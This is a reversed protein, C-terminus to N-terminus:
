WGDALQFTLQNEGNKLLATVDYSQVQVRRRYDTIGPALIFDGIRKGNLRGEYVGCATAYLRAKKVAGASFVKRFCDVPYRQKKNVRYNGAIWKAQWDSADLLGLEFNAEESWDGPRDNEDWLRVQWIVRSRSTLTEGAYQARMASGPTKGSDWLTYGEEDRCLIQYATQTVGGECNWFLRPQVIDIGMPNHLYETKINVALM